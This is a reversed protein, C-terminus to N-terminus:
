KSGNNNQIRNLERLHSTNSYLKKMRQQVRKRKALNAEIDLEAKEGCYPCRDYSPNKMALTGRQQEFTRHCKLCKRYEINKRYM